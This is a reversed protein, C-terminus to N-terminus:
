EILKASLGTYCDPGASHAYRNFVALGKGPEATHPCYASVASESIRNQKRSAFYAAVAAEAPGLDKWGWELGMGVGNWGKGLRRKAALDM